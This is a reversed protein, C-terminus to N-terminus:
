MLDKDVSINVCLSVAKNLFDLFEAFLLQYKNHADKSKNIILVKLRFTLEVTISITRMSINKNVNHSNFHFSAKGRM